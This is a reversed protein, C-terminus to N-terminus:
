MGLLWKLSWILALPLIVLFFVTKGFVSLGSESKETSELILSNDKSDM